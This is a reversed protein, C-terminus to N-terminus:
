GERTRRVLAQFGPHSRLEQWWWYSAWDGPDGGFGSAFGALYATLREVAEDHDGLLVRAHAEIYPLELNPDVEAGARARLLVRRASDPLEARALVAGVLMMSRHEQYDRRAEPALEVTRRHFRWAEEVDPTSTPLALVMIRCEWFRHDSPFRRRGEECASRAENFQETDYSAFFLRSLITPASDLFADHEYAARASLLVKTLDGVQYYLHSLTANASARSRDIDVAAELDAQANRLLAQAEEPDSTVGLIWRWYRLTGRAELASADNPDIGLARDAHGMGEDIKALAEDLDPLVRSTRYAVWAREAPAEEWAPDVTEALALFSDARAFAVLGGELEQQRLREEASKREREGRQLLGWAEVNSTGARRRQLTIEEGLRRRLLRAAEQTLSDRASLLAASPVAFTARELFAGSIGQVLRVSVRLLDDAPELSGQVLTGVELARAISDFSVNTEQYPRTANGSLVNLGNVRSLEAILGETLGDAVYQYGGDPSLDEFYLVAISRPDLLEPGPSGGWPGELVSWSVLAVLVLIAASLPVLLKRQRWSGAKPRRVASRWEGSVVADLARVLEEGTQFRDAPSKALTRKLVEELAAPVAPRVVGVPTPELTAHQRVLSASTPGVFPPQGALMEYFVCGLSYLDSRGDVSTEGGGQEPSAYAPTGVAFGARTLGPEGGAALAKALGFDALVAHGSELLINEPKVDRHIIGRAHAFSLADAIERCIRLAEDCPLQRERDLRQRLSEGEVFPMVCYLFGDVAGSDYVSLIHPHNLGAEIRIERSFREGGVTSALDPRVIKLAVKRDHRVDHAKFVIGMGGTGVEGEITYREALADRLRDLDKSSLAAHEPM